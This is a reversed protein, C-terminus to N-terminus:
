ADRFFAARRRRASSGHWLWGIGVGLALVLFLLLSRSLAFSWALFRVEVAGANQVVFLGALTALVLAV